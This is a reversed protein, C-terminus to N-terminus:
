HKKIIFEQIDSVSCSEGHLQFRKNCLLKFILELYKWTKTKRHSEKSKEM